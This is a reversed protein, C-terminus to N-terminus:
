LPTWRGDVTIFLNMSSNLDLSAQCGTSIDGAVPLGPEFDLGAGTSCKGEVEAGCIETDKIKYSTFGAEGVSKSGETSASSTEIPSLPVPIVIGGLEQEIQLGEVPFLLPPVPFGASTDKPSFPTLCLQPELPSQRLDIHTAGAASLTPPPTPPQDEAVTLSRKMSHSSRRSGGMPSALEDIEAGDGDPYKDPLELSAPVSLHSCESMARRMAKKQQQAWGMFRPELEKNDEGEKHEGEVVEMMDKDSNDCSSGESLKQIEQIIGARTVVEDDSELQKDNTSGGTVPYNPAVQPVAVKLSSKNWPEPDGDTPADMLSTGMSHLHMTYTPSSLEIDSAPCGPVPPLSARSSGGSGLASPLRGPSAPSPFPSSLPSDPSEGASGLSANGMSPSGSFGGARGPVELEDGMSFQGPQEFYCLKDEDTLGASVLSGDGVVLCGTNGMDMGSHHQWDWTQAPMTPPVKCMESYDTFPSGPQQDSLSSM